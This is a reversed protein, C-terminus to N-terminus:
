QKNLNMQLPHYSPYPQSMMIQPRNMPINSLQPPPPRMGQIQPPRVLPVNSIPPQQSPLRSQQTQHLQQMQSQIASIKQNLTQLIEQKMLNIIELFSNDVANNPRSNDMSRVNKDEVTTQHINEQRGRERTDNRVVPPHRKTGKTHNYRCNESFCEGKRLSGFCMKPHVFKCKKGLNCGRPQRTGHQTFKRCMPPHSFKCDHGKIGYKCRGNVLFRCVTSSKELTEDSEKRETVIEIEANNSVTEISDLQQNPFSKATDTRKKIDLQNQQTYNQSSSVLSELNSNNKKNKYNGEEENPITNPKCAECIYFIGPLDLPNYIKKFKDPNLDNLESDPISAIELWCKTHVGQGCIACELIPIEHLAISYQEKCICCNDPLLNQIRCVILHSLASKTKEMFNPIQLFKATERLTERYEKEFDKEIQLLTKGYQYNRLCFKVTDSTTNLCLGAILDATQSESTPEESVNESTESLVM